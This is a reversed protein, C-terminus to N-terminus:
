KAKGKEYAKIEMAIYKQKQTTTIVGYGSDWREVHRQIRADLEKRTRPPPRQCDAAAHGPLECRWCPGIIV